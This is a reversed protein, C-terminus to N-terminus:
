LGVVKVSAPSVTVEWELSLNIKAQAGVSCVWNLKRDLGLAEVACDTPEDAGDWQAVVGRAVNIV